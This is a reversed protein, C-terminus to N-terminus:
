MSPTEEMKAVIEKFKRVLTSDCRCKLHYDWWDLYSSNRKIFKLLVRRQHSRQKVMIELQGAQYKVYNIDTPLKQSM